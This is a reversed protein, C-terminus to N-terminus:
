SGKLAQKLADNVWTRMSVGEKESRKAVRAHVKEDIVVMKRPGAGADRLRKQYARQHAANAARCKEGRCTKYRQLTGCKARGPKNGQCRTDIKMVPLKKSAQKKKTTKKAM